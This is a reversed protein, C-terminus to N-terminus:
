DTVNAKEMQTAVMAVNCCRLLRPSKCAVSNSLECATSLFWFFFDVSIAVM